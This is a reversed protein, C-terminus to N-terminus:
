DAFNRSDGANLLCLWRAFDDIEDINGDQGHSRLGAVMCLVVVARNFKQALCAYGNLVNGKTLQPNM